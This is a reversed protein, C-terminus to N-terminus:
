ASSAVLFLSCRNRTSRREKRSAKIHLIPPSVACTFCAGAPGAAQQRIWATGVSVTAPRGTLHHVTDGLPPPTPPYLLVLHHSIVCQHHWSPGRFEYTCYFLNKVSVFGHPGGVCQLLAKDSVLWPVRGYVLFCGKCIGFWPAWGHM